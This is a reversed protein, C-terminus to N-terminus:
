KFLGMEKVQVDHGEKHMEQVVMCATGFNLAFALCITGMYISYLKGETKSKKNYYKTSAGESRACLEAGQKKIFFKQRM